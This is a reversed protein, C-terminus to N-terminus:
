VEQATAAAALAVDSAKSATSTTDVHKSIATGVLSILKQQLELLAKHPVNGHEERFTKHDPVLGQWSAALCEAIPGNVDGTDGAFAEQPPAGGGSPVSKAPSSSTSSAGDLGTDAGSGVGGSDPLHQERLYVLQM